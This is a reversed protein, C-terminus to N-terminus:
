TPTPPLVSVEMRPKSTLKNDNIADHWNLIAQITLPSECIGGIMMERGAEIRKAIAIEGERSLLEVAGMERLYLRVPDDTRGADDSVNGSSSEEEEEDADGTAAKKSTKPAEDEDGETVSINMESLAAMTDEILDSNIKDQPLAANIEDLTVYGREKGKRIMAKIAEAATDIIPADGDAEEEIKPEDGPLTAPPKKATSEPKPAPPSSAAVIRAHSTVKVEPTVSKTDKAPPSAAKKVVPAPKKPQPKPTAKAPAAKVVSKKVVPKPAPKKPVPKAKARAPPAAKKAAPKKAAHKKPSAM